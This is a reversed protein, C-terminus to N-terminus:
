PYSTATCDGWDQWRPGCVKDHPIFHHLVWARAWLPGFTCPAIGPDVREHTLLAARASATAMVKVDVWFVDIVSHALRRAWGFMAPDSTAAQQFVFPATNSSM